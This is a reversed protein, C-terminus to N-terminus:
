RPVRVDAEGVDIGDGLTEVAFGSRAAYSRMAGEFTGTYDGGYCQGDEPNMRWTAYPHGSMGGSLALVVAEPNTIPGRQHILRAAVVTAGNPLMAGPQLYTM